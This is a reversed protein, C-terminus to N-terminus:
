WSGSAGGGGSSGGGFGGGFGGGMGGGGSRWHSGGGGSMSSLFLFPLLGMRGTLFLILLLIYFLASFLSRKSGHARSPSDMRDLNGPSNELLSKLDIKYEQAVKQNINYMAFTVGENYGIGQFRKIMDRIVDGCWADPMPGELGYGVEIRAKREQKSILLLVGNDKEASGIKWNEFLKTAFEEVSYDDLSNVSVFVVQAGTKKYIITSVSNLNAVTERNLFQAYDNVFGRPKLKQPNEAHIVPTM